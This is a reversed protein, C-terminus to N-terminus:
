LLHEENGYYVIICQYQHLSQFDEAGCLEGGTWDLGIWDLGAWDTQQIKSLGNVKSQWGEQKRVRSKRRVEGAMGSSVFCFGLCVL